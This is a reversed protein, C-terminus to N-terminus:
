RLSVASSLRLEILFRLVSACHLSAAILDFVRVVSVCLFCLYLSLDKRLAMEICISEGCANDFWYFWLYAGRIV